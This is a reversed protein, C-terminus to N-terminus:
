KVEYIHNSLRLQYRDKIPLKNHIVLFSFPENTADKLIQKFKDAPIAQEEAIKQVESNNGTQFIITDSSNLRMSRPVMKYQQSLLILSINFHRASFFLKNLVSQRSQNLDQVVDDFIFLLHPAKKKTYKHIIGIQENILDQITNENYEDYVNGKEINDSMEFSPDTLHFTSSWIFINKKFYKRYPLDRSSILNSILVSKGSNSPAVIVCRFPPKFLINPIEDDDGKIDPAKIIIENPVKKMKM